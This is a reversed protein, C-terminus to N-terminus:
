TEARFFTVREEVLSVSASQWGAALWAQAEVHTRDNAWWARRERASRPLADGIIGEVDKFSLTVRSTAKRRLYEHLADYKSM